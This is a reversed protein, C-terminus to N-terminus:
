QHTPQPIHHPSVDLFDRRGQHALHHRTTFSPAGSVYPNNQQFKYHDVLKIGRHTAEFNDWDAQLHDWEAHSTSAQPPASANVERWFHQYEQNEQRFYADNPDEDLLGEDAERQEALRISATEAFGVSKRRVHEMGIAHGLPVDIARGKGKLDAQFDGAWGSTQGTNQVLENGEVVIERDRLGKMLSLFESKQFKPNQADRVTELLLGATRSLEDADRAVQRADQIQPSEPLQEKTSATALFTEQSNFERDWM